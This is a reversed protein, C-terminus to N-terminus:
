ALRLAQVLRFVLRERADRQAQRSEESLRPDGAGFVCFLPPRRYAYVDQIERFFDKDEVYIWESYPLRTVRLPGVTFADVAAGVGPLMYIEYEHTSPLDLPLFRFDPAM